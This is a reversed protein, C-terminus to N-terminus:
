KAVGSPLIIPTRMTEGPVPMPSRPPSRSSSFTFSSTALSFGLASEGAISTPYAPSMGFAISSFSESTLSANQALPTAATRMRPPTTRKKRENQDSRTMESGAKMPTPQAYENAMARYPYTLVLPANRPAIM